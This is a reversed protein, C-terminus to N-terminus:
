ATEGRVLVVADRAPVQVNHLSGQQVRFDGRGHWVSQFIAGDYAADLQNLTVKLPMTHTNYIIVAAAEGDYRLCAYVGHDAYLTHVKGTCLVPYAHRLAIVEKFFDFIESNWQDPDDWPFAARCFPDTASTMGIEDGYYICPSGPMTMQFITCLRLASEDGNVIWLTRATDHSDM